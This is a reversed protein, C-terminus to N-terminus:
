RPDAGSVCDEVICIIAPVVFAARWGMFYILTATTAAAFAVGFNGCVGNLALSRGRSTAQEILM